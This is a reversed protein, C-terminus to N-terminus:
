GYGDTHEPQSGSQSMDSLSFVGVASMVLKKVESLGNSVNDGAM